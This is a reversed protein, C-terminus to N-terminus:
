KRLEVHTEALVEGNVRLSFTHLGSYHKRTTLEKFSHQKSVQNEGSFQELESWQFVKPAQKGNSKMFGVVYEIRLKKPVASSYVLNMRLSDEGHVQEKDLKFEKLEFGELNSYEFIQLAKPHAQKLLGRLAHKVLRKRSPKEKLYAACKDLVLEPHDKSIDNLNNAVSRRVYEESDDLLNELVPW